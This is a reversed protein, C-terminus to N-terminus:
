AKFAARCVEKMQRPDKLTFSHRCGHAVLEVQYINEPHDRSLLWDWGCLPDKLGPSLMVPRSNSGTAGYGMRGNSRYKYLNIM